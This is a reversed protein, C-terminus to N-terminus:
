SAGVSEASCLVTSECGVSCQSTVTSLDDEVTTRRDAARTEGLNRREADERQCVTDANFIM